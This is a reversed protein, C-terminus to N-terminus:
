FASNVELCNSNDISFYIIYSNVINCVTEVFIDNENITQKHSNNIDVCSFM